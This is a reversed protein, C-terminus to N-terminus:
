LKGHHNNNNEPIVCLEEGNVPTQVCKYVHHGSNGRSHFFYFGGEFLPRGQISTADIWYNFDITGAPVVRPFVTSVQYIRIVTLPPNHSIRDM